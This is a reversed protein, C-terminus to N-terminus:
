KGSKEMNDDKSDEKEEYAKLDDPIDEYKVEDQDFLANLRDTVEQPVGYNIRFRHGDIGVISPEVEKLPGHEELARQALKTAETSEPM